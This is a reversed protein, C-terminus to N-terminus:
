RSSDMAATWMGPGEGTNSTNFQGVSVATCVAAHRCPCGASGLTGMNDLYHDFIGAGTNECRVWAPLLM